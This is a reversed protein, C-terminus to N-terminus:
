APGAEANEADEDEIRDLARRAAEVEHPDVNGTSPVTLVPVHLRTRARVGVEANRWTQWVSPPSGGIVVAGCRRRRVTETIADVVDCHQIELHVKVGHQRAENLFINASTEGDREDVISAQDPIYLLLIDADLDAALEVLTKAKARAPDPGATAVLLRRPGLPDAQRQQEDMRAPEPLDARDVLTRHPFPIQVGAEDFADKIAARLRSAVLYRDRADGIFCWLELEIGSDAFENTLVRPQPYDLVDEDNEAVQRVTQRALDLDSDYSIPVPIDLRLEPYRQTYNWIEREDMLRNPIVVYERRATLIRTSRLGIAEVDGWHEGIQVRDGVEFPRDSVLNIGGMINAVTERLGLALGAGVLGLTVALDLVNISFATLAVGFGVLMLGAVVLQRVLNGLMPDIRRRSFVTKDLTWALVRAFVFFVVLITVFRPVRTVLWDLDGPALGAPGLVYRWLADNVTQWTGAV